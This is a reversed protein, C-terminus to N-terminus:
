SITSNNTSTNTAATSNELHKIIKPQVIDAAVEYAAIFPVANTRLV